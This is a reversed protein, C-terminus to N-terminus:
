SIWNKLNLKLAIIRLGLWVLEIFSVFGM